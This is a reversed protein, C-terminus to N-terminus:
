EARLAEMPDVRTARRAPLWCAFTTIALILLAVGGFVGVDTPKVGYLLRGLPQVAAWALPLGCLLGVTALIANQRVVLRVVDSARAGLAMRVGIERTRRVVNFSVLGYLGMLALLLVLLGQAGVVAAGFRIPMLGLPSTAIQQELTRVNYLPLGPELQRVLREIAPALALSDGEARVVLTLGGRYNQALPLFVLPRGADALVAFRVNPIVGVVEIPPQRGNIVIRRGVANEGPWLRRAMAENVIAVPPAKADDAVSFARGAALPIGLTSLFAHDIAAVQMPQYRSADGPPQGERAVDGQIAINTDFPANEALSAAQVGPLARVEALLREHFRRAADFGNRVVYRQLGLDYSALLVNESRFGLPVHALQYASRLALGAGVLVVSALAVQVVVLISRLPHRAAASTRTADKLLPLVALQTGKLAPLLAAFFAAGIAALFTFGFVRWDTGYRAPPPFDGMGALTGMLRAGAWHAAVVAVGGALLAVLVAEVLLQQLLRARSAGLAGRVALERERETARAFLLSGMNAVAVGLVLLAGIMLIGVILPVLRSAAPSPRSLREPVLLTKGPLHQDRYAELIRAFIVNAAANAQAVSAGDRLRAMVNFVPSGRNQLIDRNGPQLVPLMSAPVFGSMADAWQAGQFGPATVGVVTFPLSNISVQQGIISPDAGFRQRWCAETLVIVADASSKQGENAAFLRGRHPQVGLVTFFNDSVASIWTRETSEQTRSLAVPLQRFALMGSFAAAMDSSPAPGGDNGEIARRFDLYDPYAFGFPVEARPSTEMLYALQGPHAVPLPRLFFESVFQFVTANVGLGLALTLVVAATFAPRRGLMRGGFRVDRVLDELWGWGRQDRCTEQIGDLHGFQRRAAYHAEAANMGAARNAAEQMELHARLEETMEAELKQRRLLSKLKSWFKM